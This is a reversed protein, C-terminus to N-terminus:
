NNQNIANRPNEALNMALRLFLIACIPAVASNLQQPLPAITMTAAALLLLMQLYILWRCSRRQRIAFYVFLPSAWLINLNVKTCYHATCFWLFMVLVSVLFVAAYLTADMWHLTWKRRYGVFSVVAVVLLMLGFLLAPPFSDALPDRTEELLMRAPEALPEHTDSTTLTDLLAKMELPSFMYEYNSCRHDCRLGLAMDVAFRWWLLKKETSQYLINRYSRNTDGTVEPSLTRHCLASAAMDRVRTACNDRFFDYQYYRYEPLYNQELLIFLNRVEQSSLRLRQEWVARGEYGYELMFGAFGSRSLCYNLDGRAFTWYFHPIDFDFTGYNYVVDLEIAPDCIRIASHGFTTYFEDGPGCTLVSAYASDSLPVASLDQAAAGWSCLLLLTLALLHKKM